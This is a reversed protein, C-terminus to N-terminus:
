KKVTINEKIKNRVTQSIKTIIIIRAYLVETGIQINLAKLTFMFDFVVLQLNNLTREMGTNFASKM